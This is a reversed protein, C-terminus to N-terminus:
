ERMEPRRKGFIKSNMSAIVKKTHADSLHSYRKTMELTKHGLIQAIDILSAGDMAMYSAASHRLDHFRFDELEADKVARDWGKRINTPVHNGSKTSPFLLDVNAKRKNYLELVLELAYDQLPLIRIEGNKTENLQIVERDFHINEWKLSLIENKRAGTSLALVVITYLYKNCSQYCADLLRFREEKSLYRTRGRAEKLKSVRMCPNDNTWEWEKMAVTFAHSLVAMYRNVTGNSRMKGTQVIKTKKLENRFATIISPTVEKITLNGIKDKWYELQKLQDYQSAESKLPLNEEIYRDILDAMTKKKSASFSFYRGEHIASETNRAWAKAETKTNFTATQVPYGKVRVKVRYSKEGKANEREEIAAM